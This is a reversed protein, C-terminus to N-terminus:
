YKIIKQTLIHENVNMSLMYVGAPIESVDISFENLKQLSIQKTLLKRGSLDLLNIVGTHTSQNDKLHVSINLNNNFPNPFVTIKGMTEELLDEEAEAKQNQSRDGTFAMAHNMLQEPTLSGNISLGSYAYCMERVNGYTDDWNNPAEVPYNTYQHWSYFTCLIPYFIENNANGYGYWFGWPENVDVVQEFGAGKDLWIHLYGDDSEPDICYSYAISWWKGIDERAIQITARDTTTVRKDSQTVPVEKERTTFVIKGYDGAYTAIPGPVGTGPEHLSQIIAQIDAAFMWEEIKFTTFMQPSTPLCSYQSRTGDFFLRDSGPYTTSLNVGNSQQDAIDYSGDNKFQHKHCIAENNIKLGSVSKTGFRFSDGDEMPFSHVQHNDDFKLGYGSGAQINDTYSGTNFRNGAVILQCNDRQPGYSEPNTPDIYVTLASADILEGCDTLCEQPQDGTCECNENYTDNVTSTNGDDCATGVNCSVSVTQRNGTYAYAHDFLQQDTLSGNISIGTYAYCMERVNGYTDDWNNPAETPYNTYRHWSYFQAVIPYFMENDPHGSGYWIGWPENLSVVQEFGAGKDVWINLFGDTGAPDICYSYAVSWWNGVDDPSLSVIAQDTATMSTDDPNVPTSKDRTTFIIKGYDGAYTILPSTGFGPQHMDHIIGQIDAAFMWQEIRFTSVIQVHDCGPGAKVALPGGPSSSNCAYQTRTGDFFLRDTGPYTTSLNIGGSEQSEDYSGDNKFQHKHCIAEHNIQLGSVNKTGFRFSDGDEMTFSHVELNDDFSLGYGTGRQLGDVYEGTNFRNGAVILQCNDREPGYSEPETPDLYVTFESADLPLDSGPRNGALIVGRAARYEFWGYPCSLWESKKYGEACKTSETWAGYSETNSDESQYTTGDIIIKDIILAHEWPQGSRSNVRISSITTEDIVEVSFPLYNDGAQINNWSKLSQGNVTLEMDEEGTNGRAYITITSSESCGTDDPKCPDNDDPDPNPDPNSNSKCNDTKDPVGDGDQDPANEGEGFVIDKAAEYEFWGYPCTLWTSNKYGEVCGTSETWAGDSLTSGAETQFTRGDIVIKDVILANPWELGNIFNIRISNITM